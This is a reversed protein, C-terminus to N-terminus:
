SYTPHREFGYHDGSYPRKWYPDKILDFIQKGFNPQDLISQSGVLFRGDKWEDTTDWVQAVGGVSGSIVRKSDPSFRVSFISANSPGGFIDLMQGSKADWIRVTRDLSGSAIKHGDVSYIVSCVWNTHGELVHVLKGTFADWVRVTEDRSGSVIQKGNPSFAVCNVGAMHGELVHQVQGMEPDWLRVTNDESGSIIKQSDPSHAVSWVMDTHGQLIRLEEGTQADWVHITKDALGSIIQTDNPAFAVSVVGHPHKLVHLNQSMVADWVQVTGDNSGSAIQKGDSSFAVATVGSYHGVLPKNLASGTIVDWVTLGNSDPVAICRGDLSISSIAPHPVRAKHFTSIEATGYTQLFKKACGRYDPTKSKLLATMVPSMQHPAFKPLQGKPFKLLITIVLNAMTLQSDQLDLSTGATIDDLISYLDQASNETQDLSILGQSSSSIEVLANLHPILSESNKRPKQLLPMLNEQVKNYLDKEIKSEDVWGYATVEWKSPLLAKFPPVDTDPSANLFASEHIWQGEVVQRPAGMQPRHTTDTSDKYSLRRIPFAEFILWLGTLSEKMTSKVKEAIPENKEGGDDGEKGVAQDNEIPGRKRQFLGMHLIAFMNVIWWFCTTFKETNPGKIVEKEGVKDDMEVPDKKKVKLPEVHLGALIAEHIMWRLAPGYSNLGKNIANGGGIDSHTGAFWVEKTQPRTSSFSSNKKMTDMANAGGMDLPPKSTTPIESPDEESEPINNPKANPDLSAGGYAYEPLFKVRREDLALAHRFYCVHKMGSTTLPFDKTPRVFGISSVTDWAGVFHVKVDKRSFTTKFRWPMYEPSNEEPEVETNPQSDTSRAYLEYAFPIQAANGKHILGVKEIMGALVRVQYAGRSFGFLFIRDGPSYMESLWRYADLLIPEFRLALALDLYNAIVQKYYSLSKWSPEAYTGIGSNYFTLQGNDKMLRSYLEVINTNKTGFKNSTGDICVVLNRQTGCKCSGDYGDESTVNPPENLM